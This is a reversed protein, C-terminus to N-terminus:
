KALQKNVLALAKTMLAISVLWVFLGFPIFLAFIIGGLWINIFSLIWGGGGIIAAGLIAIGLIVLGMLLFIGLVRLVNGKMLRWSTRLPEKQDVAVYLFTLTLRTALYILGVASLVGLVGALFINEVLFYSGMTIGAAIGGYVAFLIIILLYYLFMKVLRKNLSFAWWKDGGEELTVYRFANVYLVLAALTELVYHIITFFDGALSGQAESQIIGEENITFNFEGSLYLGIGMSVLAIFWVVFPAFAIKIWQPLHGRVDKYSKKFTNVIAIM